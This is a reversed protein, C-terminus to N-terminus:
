PTAKRRTVEHVSYFTSTDQQINGGYKLQTRELVVRVVAEHREYFTVRATLAEYWRCREQGGNLQDRRISTLRKPPIAQAKLLIRAAVPLLQLSQQKTRTARSVRTIHEWGRRTIESQFVGPYSKSAERWALYYSRAADILSTGSLFHMTPENAWPAIDVDARVIPLKRFEAWRWCLNYFKSKAALDLKRSIDFSVNGKCDVDSSKLDAWYAVPDGHTLRRPIVNIMIAPGPYASWRARHRDLHDVGLSIQYNNTPVASVYGTKIQMFILDGTPGAYARLGHRRKLLIIADVGDDNHASIIELGCRWLGEVIWRVWAVGEQGQRNIDIRKRRKALQSAM